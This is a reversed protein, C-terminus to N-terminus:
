KEIEKLHMESEMWDEKTASFFDIISRLIKLNQINMKALINSKKDIRILQVTREVCDWSLYLSKSIKKEVIFWDFGYKKLFVTDNEDIRKFGLDMVDIYKIKEQM